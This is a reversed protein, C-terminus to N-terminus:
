LRVFVTAHCHPCEPIHSTSKFKLEHRCEECMFTGPSTIEGTHYQPTHKAKEEIMALEVRTKDALDMFADFAFDEILNIDFKLWDSFSLKEKTKGHHAAHHIDRKVYHSVQNMEEASLKTSHTTKQKAIELADQMSNESDGLTEHLHQMFHNYAHIFNEKIM